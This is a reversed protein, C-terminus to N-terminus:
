KCTSNNQRVFATLGGGCRNELTLEGMGLLPLCVDINLLIDEYDTSVPDPFTKLMVTHIKIGHGIKKILVKHMYLTFECNCVSYCQVSLCEIHM